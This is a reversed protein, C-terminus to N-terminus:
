RSKANKQQSGLLSFRVYRGPNVRFDNLLQNLSSIAQNINNYLGDDGLVRSLTNDGEELRSLVGGVGTLIDDFKAVLEQLQTGRTEEVLLNLKELLPKVGREQDALMGFVEVINSRLIHLGSTDETEGSYETIGGVASLLYDIRDTCTVLNTVLKSVLSALHQTDQLNSLADGMLVEGISLTDESPVTDYNQLVNGENFLIDIAKGGFLSPSVIRTRTADTLKIHKQTEFTVLISHGQDPQIKLGRVKGVPVGNFLVLSSANLGSGDAYVTHYCNQSSFVPNGKLFSSGLYVIILAATVFLGVKIEQNLRV